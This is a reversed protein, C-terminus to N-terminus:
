KGKRTREKFAEHSDDIEKMRTVFFSLTHKKAETITRYVNSLTDSEYYVKGKKTKRWLGQITNGKYQLMHYAPFLPDKVTKIEKISPM